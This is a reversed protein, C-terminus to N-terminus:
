VANTLDKLQEFNSKKGYDIFQDMPIVNSLIKLTAYVRDVYHMKDDDKNWLRVDKLIDNTKMKPRGDKYFQPVGKAMVQVMGDQANYLWVKDGEQVGEVLGKEITEQIADLVKQETLREPRLVSKTVTKKTAWRNIFQINTAERIYNRYISPLAASEDNLLSHIMTELMETLAPEKKQDTVASGKFKVKGDKVLVYNKARIVIVKEYIGDNEWKILDPYLSNLEKLLSSFLEGSVPQSNTISFSDTDVNVLTYGRGASIKDGLKWEYSIEEDQTGENAIDKVVKELTHGTAWEVGKLLIERGKRTVEAAGKPYNYLLFGSGLFGYMSNIMIKQANQMDDFYKDGTEKAKKKNQLREDRFYTLMQIMHNYPDKQKDHINYELMVSPYLSAIDAKLVHQYVGPIGMSV